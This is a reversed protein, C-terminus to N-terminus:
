LTILSQIELLENQSVIRKSVLDNLDTFPRNQVIKEATIKGVHPLLELQTLSASNISLPAPVGASAQEALYPIYIKEEHTLQKALNLQKAIVYRDAEQTLGGAAILGDVVRSKSPVAYVGPRAVAGEIDIILETKNTKSSRVVTIPENTNKIPNNLTLFLSLCAVVASSIVAIHKIPAHM